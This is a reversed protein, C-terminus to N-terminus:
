GFIGETNQCVVYTMRFSTIHVFFPLVSNDIYRVSSCQLFLCFLPSWSSDDHLKTVLKYNRESGSNIDM